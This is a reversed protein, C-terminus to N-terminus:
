TTTTGTTTGTTTTTTTTTTSAATPAVNKVTGSTLFGRNDVEVCNKYDCSIASWTSASLKRVSPIQTWVGTLPATTDFANDAGDVAVCFGAGPCSVSDLLQDDGSPVTTQITTNIWDTAPGTPTATASALGTTSDGYGVGVCMKVTPCTISALVGDTAGASHWAAVGGTPNFAYFRNNGGLVCRTLSACTVSTLVPGNPLAALKWASAPGTPDTSTVVGSANDVAVCLSSSACSIGAFGANGGGVAQTTDAKVPKSWFKAGGTPDKSYIVDGQNDVVACFTTTPCSIGMLAAHKVTDITVRKWFLHSKWPHTSWWIHGTQDAAVCLQGGLPKTVTNVACSVADFGGGTTPNEIALSHNWKVAPATASSTTTTSTTTTTSAAGASQPVAFVALAAAALAAAVAVSLKFFTRM